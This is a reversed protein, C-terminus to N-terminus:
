EANEEAEVYRMFTVRYQDGRQQPSLAWGIQAKWGDVEHPKVCEQLYARVEDKAYLGNKPFRMDKHERVLGWMAPNSRLEYECPQYALGTLAEAFDALPVKIRLMSLGSSEDEVEISIYPADGGGYPRGITIKAQRSETM